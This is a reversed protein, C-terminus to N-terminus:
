EMDELFRSMIGPRVEYRLKQKWWDNEWEPPIRGVVEPVPLEDCEDLVATADNFNLASKYMMIDAITTDRLRSRQWTAVRGSVSFMREVSCGSAPAALTDRVMRALDPFKHHHVKWWALASKIRGDNETSIYHEYDDTRPRKKAREALTAQFEDDDDDDDPTACKSSTAIFPVTTSTSKYDLEYRHRCADVYPQCDIDSWTEENFISLKCRPNLIMADAYIFPVKTKDYFAQLKESMEELARVFVNASPLSGLARPSHLSFLVDKIHNFMRDYAYFTYDIEPNKTNNEFRTTVRKFPLLFVYLVEVLDWEEGTMACREHFPPGKERNTYPEDLLLKTLFRGIPKRLYIAQELM